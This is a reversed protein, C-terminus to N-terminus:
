DCMKQKIGLVLALLLCPLFVLFWLVIGGVFYSQTLENGYIKLMMDYFISAVIFNLWFVPIGYILDLIFNYKDKKNEM